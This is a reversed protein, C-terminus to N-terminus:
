KLKSKYWFSTGSISPCFGDTLASVFGAYHELLCFSLRTILVIFGFSSIKDLRYVSLVVFMSLQTVDAHITRLIVIPKIGKYNVYLKVIKYTKIGFNRFHHNLKLEITVWTLSVSLSLSTNNKVFIDVEWGVYQRRYIVSRTRLVPIISVPSIRLDRLFVRRIEWMSQGPFYSPESTSFGTVLGRPWPVFETALSLTNLIM